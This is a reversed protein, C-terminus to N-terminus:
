RAAKEFVGKDFGEKGLETSCLIFGDVRRCYHGSLKLSPTPFDDSFVYATDASLGDRKVQAPQESCFFDVQKPTTRGAYFSNMTMKNEAALRGFIWYGDGKGGPTKDGDCQWAPIVILNKHARAMTQWVAGKTLDNASLQSRYWNITNYYGRLDAFQVLLALTLVLAARKGFAIVAAGIIAALIVYYAAWFLRGSARFASLLDYIFAPPAMDFFVKEGATMKLSLALLTSVIVVLRAFVADRDLIYRGVARPSRVIAAAFLVIVGLGFYNYGEYQGIFSPQKKLLLAPYDFPDIPALLNMSFIGYGGGAYAKADGGVIFGFIWLAVAAAAVSAIIGIAPVKVASLVDGDRAALMVSKLYGAGVLMLVLLTIYPNIGGAVFCIAVGGAMRPRSIRASTALYFELAAAILWHSTLAFHGFARWAFPPSMMFLLGGIVSSLTDNNTLHRTVRYGFYFQLVSSLAFWLGLYQFTDPLIHRFPWFVLAVLPMSDLYAIPEGMPYGLTAAWGLPFTLSEQNRFFMWGLQGTAPDGSVWTMNAPNIVRWGVLSLAFLVGVVSFLSVLLLTRSFARASGTM